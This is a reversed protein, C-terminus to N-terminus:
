SDPPMVYVTDAALGGDFVEQQAVDLLQLRPVPLPGAARIRLRIWRGAQKGAIVLAPCPGSVAVHMAGCRSMQKLLM